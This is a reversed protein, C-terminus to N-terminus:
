KKDGMKQATIENLNATKRKKSTGDDNDDDNDNLSLKEWWRRLTVTIMAIRIVQGNTVYCNLHNFNLHLLAKTYIWRSNIPIHTLAGVM